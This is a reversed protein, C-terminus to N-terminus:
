RRRKKEIHCSNDSAAFPTLNACTDHTVLVADVTVFGLSEPPNEKLHLATLRHPDNARTNCKSCVM